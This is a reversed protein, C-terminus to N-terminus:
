KIARYTEDHKALIQTAEFGYSGDPRSIFHGQVTVGQGERFLAPLKGKYMVLVSKDGDTLLFSAKSPAFSNRKVYGGIRLQKMSNYDSLTLQSPTKFFSIMNNFAYLTCIIALISAIVFILPLFIQQYRSRHRISYM